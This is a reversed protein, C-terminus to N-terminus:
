RILGEQALQFDYLEIWRGDITQRRSQREWGRKAYFGGAGLPGDLTALSIKRCNRGECEAVFARLLQEGVGRGRATEVTAIHSLVAVGSRAGADVAPAPQAQGSQAPTGRRNVRVAIRRAILRSALVPNAAFSALLAALLPVAHHRKLWQRHWSTHFIGVLFGCVRGDVEAVVATAFPAGIFTRYYAQLTANGLRGIVNTPFSLRHQEAVFAVDAPAMYRLRVDSTSATVGDTPSTPPRVMTM